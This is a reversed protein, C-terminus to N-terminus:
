EQHKVKAVPPIKGGFFQAVRHHYEMPSLRWEDGFSQNLLKLCHNLINFFSMGSYSGAIIPYLTKEEKMKKTAEDLLYHLAFLDFYFDEGEFSIGFEKTEFDGFLLAKKETRNVLYTGLRCMFTGEKTFITKKQYKSDYSPRLYIIEKILAMRNEIVTYEEESLKKLEDM